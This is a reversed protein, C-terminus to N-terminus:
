APPSPRVSAGRRCRIRRVARHLAFISLAPVIVGTLFYYTTWMFARSAIVTPAALMGYLCVSGRNRARVILFRYLYRQVVGVALGCFVIGAIGFDLYLHGPLSIAEFTPADQSLFGKLVEWFFAAGYAVPKEPFAFRPFLPLVMDELLRRGEQFPLQSPFTNLVVLFSEFPTLMSGVGAMLRTWNDDLLPNASEATLGASLLAGIRLYNMYSFIATGLVIIGAAMPLSLRRVFYHRYLVIAFLVAGAGGKSGSGALVSVLLLVFLGGGVMAMRMLSRRIPVLVVLIYPLSYIMATFTIVLGSRALNEPLWGPRPAGPGAILLAVLLVSGWLVIRPVSPVRGAYPIGKPVPLRLYYGIQVAVCMVQLLVLAWPIDAPDWLTEYFAPIVGGALLVPALTFHFLFGLNLINLGDLLDVPGAARLVLLHSGFLILQACVFAWLM